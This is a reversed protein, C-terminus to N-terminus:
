SKIFRIEPFPIGALMQDRTVNTPKYGNKNEYFNRARHNDKLCWLYINKFGLEYLKKEAFEVAMKSYGKGHSEKKFNLSWIEGDKDKADNGRLKGFVVCGMPKNDVYLLYADANKNSIREHFKAEDRYSACRQNIFEQPLFGTYCDIFVSCHTEGFDKHDKETVLRFEINGM